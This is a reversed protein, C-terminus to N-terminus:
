RARGQTIFPSDMEMDGQMGLGAATKFASGIVQVACQIPERLMGCGALVDLHFGVQATRGSFRRAPSTTSWSVASYEQVRSSNRLRPSAPYFFVQM